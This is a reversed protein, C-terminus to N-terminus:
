CKKRFTFNKDKKAKNHWCIEIETEYGTPIACAEDARKPPSPRFVSQRKACLAKHFPSSISYPADKKKLFFQIQITIPVGYAIFIRVHPLPLLVRLSHKPSLPFLTSCLSLASHRAKFGAEPNLSQQTRCAGNGLRM